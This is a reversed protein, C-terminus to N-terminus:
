ASLVDEHMLGVMNGDPDSFLAFSGVGQIPMPPVVTKGGHQEIKELEVNLDDVHIYMTVYPPVGQRTKLLGGNIGITSGTMVLGYGRDDTKIDWEFLDSYFKSLRGLDTVGIEFHIVPRGM